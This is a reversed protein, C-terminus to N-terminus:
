GNRFRSSFSSTFTDEPADLLAEIELEQADDLKFVTMESFNSAM